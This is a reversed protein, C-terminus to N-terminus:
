FTRDLAIAQALRRLYESRPVQVAGLQRTVPTAMQIDFLVFGHERLRDVLHCLAVKSADTVRHFMSEGAFLGGTAVGYVGGALDKGAWCEISHAHGARHLADYAQVFEPSIWTSRRGPAPRACGRIVADFATDCTVTFPHLRLTRRLSRPIHFHDLEFLARPDPSWWTLPNVSWPFVGTRYALLLRDVSLDGGVAVLGAM